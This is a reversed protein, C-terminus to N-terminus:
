QLKNDKIKNTILSSIKDATERGTWMGDDNDNILKEVEELLSELVERVRGDTFRVMGKLIDAEAEIRAQSTKDLWWDAMNGVGIYKESGDDNSWIINDAFEQFEKRLRDQNNQNTM